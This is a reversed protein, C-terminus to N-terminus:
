LHRHDHRSRHKVHIGSLSSSAAHTRMTPFLIAAIVGSRSDAPTASSTM